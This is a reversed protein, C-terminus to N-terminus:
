KGRHFFVFIFWDYDPIHNSTSDRGIEKGLSHEAANRQYQEALDQLVLKTVAPVTLKGDVATAPTPSEPVLIMSGLYLPKAELM